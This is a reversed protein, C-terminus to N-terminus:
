EQDFELAVRHGLEISDMLYPDNWAHRGILVGRLGPAWMVTKGTLLGAVQRGLRSAPRTTTQGTTMFPVM